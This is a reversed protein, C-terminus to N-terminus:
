SPTVARPLSTWVLFTHQQQKRVNHFTLEERSDLDLIVLLLWKRLSMGGVSVLVVFSEKM